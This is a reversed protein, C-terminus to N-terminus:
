NSLAEELHNLSREKINITKKSIEEDVIRKHEKYLKKNLKSVKIRALINEKFFKKDFTYQNAAGHGYDFVMSYEKKLNEYRKCGSCNSM